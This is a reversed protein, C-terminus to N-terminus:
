VSKDGIIELIPDLPEVSIYRVCSSDNNCLDEAYYIINYDGVINTCLDSIINISLDGFNRDVAKAGPDIFESYQKLIIHQDGFM